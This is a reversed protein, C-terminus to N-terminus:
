VHVTANLRRGGADLGAKCLAFFKEGVPTLSGFPAFLSSSWVEFERPQYTPLSFSSFGYSSFWSVKEVYSFVARNTLGDHPNMLAEVFPLIETVNSSGMAVETLWLTKKKRGHLGEFDEQFVEYYERIKTKVEEASRAYAHIQISDIVDWCNTATGSFDRCPMRLTHKKFEALWGHCITISGPRAPDVGLCSHGGRANGAMSPSVIKTPGAGPFAAMDQVIRQWFTAAHPERSSGASPDFLPAWGSSTAPRTEGRQCGHAPPDWGEFCAPGYLDPENFGMVYASTRLFGYGGRPADSGWIMPVYMRQLDGMADDPFGRFDVQPATKWNWWFDLAGTRRVARLCTPCSPISDTAFGCKLPAAAALGPAAALLGALMPTAATLRM